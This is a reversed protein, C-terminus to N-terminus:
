MGEGSGEVDGSDDDDVEDLGLGKIIRKVVDSKKIIFEPLSSYISSILDNFKSDNVTFLDEELQRRVTEADFNLFEMISAVPLSGKSYLNFMMDYLDGSDRLAMRSFTVKPYIWRPRGYKDDEFFGKKMAIPKFIQEEIIQSVTERFGVYRTNMIELQTRGGGYLGEGILIEPSFGLGIALDSNTHQWEGDLALLRGESGIEQWTCEYNVVISYDPDAKAEDIHARLAAIESVPVEPAVVLTKPTMNRSALTTQVQRLKERYIITRLCRQLISRGHLEYGAKKRAFHIVYSGKFPDQNLEIQGEETIRDQVDQPTNPDELYSEKQNEPVKYFIGIGSTMQGDNTINIQEPPLVQIREFGQYDKNYLNNFVRIEENKTERVEKLEELLEKKKELLRVMQKLEMLERQRKVSTGMNIAESPGADPSVPAGGGGGGLDMGGGGGLDDGGMGGGADGLDGGDVGSVGDLGADGAPAGPDSGDAPAPAGPDVQPADAAPAEDGPAATISIPYNDPANTTSILKSVKILQARKSKILADVEAINEEPDFDFGANKINFISKSAKKLIPKYGTKYAAKLFSSKKHPSLFDLTGGPGGNEAGNEAEGMPTIPTIGGGPSKRGKELIEKAAPCPEAPDSDEVFLFAEGITWYERVADMITSWLKTDNVLGQFFDFVYDAFDESTCKPKELTLKSMPLETNLDIASAVIPDRDYALRYFRLEEARSAPLELSDVPFEFSYMGMNGSDAIDAHGLGGDGFIGAVKGSRAADQIARIRNRYDTDDVVKGNDDLATYRGASGYVRTANQAVPSGISTRVKKVLTQIGGRTGRDQPRQIKAVVQKFSDNSEPM